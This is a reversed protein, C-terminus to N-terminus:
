KATSPRIFMPVGPKSLEADYRYGDEAFALLGAEDCIEERMLYAAMSGRAQKAFFSIMQPKGKRLERFAPAIIQAKLTKRDVAKYYENSALNVLIDSGSAALAENLAEAIRSGWFHYLNSGRDTALRTGMELRYPQIRDLPRLLGYLGSLIRLHDQAYAITAESQGQPAFGQYVDGDFAFIAAKASDPQPIAFTQYREENLTALKESIKMMASLDDATKKRLVPLLKATDALLDPESPTTPHPSFDLSKAPSLITLM